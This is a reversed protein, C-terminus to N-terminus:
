TMQQKFLARAKRFLGVIPGTVRRVRSLRDGPQMDTPVWRTRTVVNGVIELAARRRLLRNISWSSSRGKLWAGVAVASDSLFVLCQARSNLDRVVVELWMILARLEGLNIHDPSKWTCALFDWWPWSRCDVSSAEPARWAQSAADLAPVGPM